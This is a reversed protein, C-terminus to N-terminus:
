KTVRVDVPGTTGFTLFNVTPYTGYHWHCVSKRSFGYVYAPIWRAGDFVEVSYLGSKYTDAGPGPYVEINTQARIAAPFCAILSLTLAASVVSHRALIM